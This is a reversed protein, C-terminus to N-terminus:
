GLVLLFSEEFIGKGIISKYRPLNLTLKLPGFVVLIVVGHIHIFHCGAYSRKVNLLKKRIQVAVISGLYQNCVVGLGDLFHIAIERGLVKLKVNM